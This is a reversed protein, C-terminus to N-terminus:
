KSAKVKVSHLGKAGDPFTKLLKPDGNMRFALFVDDSLSLSYSISDSYGDEAYFATKVIGKKPVAKEIIKRVTVGDWLANGISDGGVANGICELTVFETRDKLDELEKMSLVYPKEVLGEIRLRFTKPDVDPVTDSYTTIYFENNPTIEKAMFGKFNVSGKMLLAHKEEETLAEAYQYIGDFISVGFGLGITGLGIGRFFARRSLQDNM